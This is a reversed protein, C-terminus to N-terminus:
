EPHTSTCCEVLPGLAHHTHMAAHGTLLLPFAVQRFFRESLGSLLTRWLMDAAGRTTIFHHCWTACAHLMNMRFVCIFFCAACPWVALQQGPM